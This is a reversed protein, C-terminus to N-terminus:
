ASLIRTRFLIVVEGSANEDCKVVSVMEGEVKYTLPDRNAESVGGFLM